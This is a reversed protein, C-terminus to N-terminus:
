ASDGFPSKPPSMSRTLIMHDILGGVISALAIYLTAERLHWAFTNPPVGAISLFGLVLGIGAIVPYHWFPRGIYLWYAVIWLSLMFLMLNVPVSGGNAAVIDIEFPLLFALAGTGGIVRGIRRQRTTQEVRGYHAEYWITIRWFGVLAAAFCAIVVALSGLLWAMNAARIADRSLPAALEWAALCLLGVGGAVQRLGQLDRFRGAIRAAHRADMLLDPAPTQM